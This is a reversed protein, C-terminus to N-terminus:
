SVASVPMHAEPTFQINRISSRVATVASSAAIDNKLHVVAKICQHIEPVDAFIHRLTPFFASFAAAVTGVSLIQDNLHGLARNNLIQFRSLDDRIHGSVVPPLDNQFAAPSPQSIHM